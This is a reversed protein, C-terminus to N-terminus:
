LVENDDVDNADLQHELLVQSAVESRRASSIPAQAFKVPYGFAV